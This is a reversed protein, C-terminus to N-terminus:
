FHTRQFRLIYPDGKPGDFQKAAGARLGVLRVLKLACDIARAAMEGAVGPVEGLGNLIHIRSSSVPRASDATMPSTM